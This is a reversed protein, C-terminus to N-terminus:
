HAQKIASIIKTVYEDESESITILPAHEVFEEYPWVAHFVQVVGEKSYDAGIHHTPPGDSPRGDDCGAKLRIRELNLMNPM